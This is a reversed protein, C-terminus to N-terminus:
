APVAASVAPATVVDLRELRPCSDRSVIGGVAPVDEAPGGVITTFEGDAGTGVIEWPVTFTDPVTLTAPVGATVNAPVGPTAIAPVGVTLRAAPVPSVTLLV